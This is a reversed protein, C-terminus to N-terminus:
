YKKMLDFVRQLFAERDVDTVVVAHHEDFQKDSYLDTVTKGLTRKGKTEVRVGAEEGRFISDDATYLVAAPDHLAVTDMGWTEFLKLAHQVVDRFLKCEKTGIAAMEELEPKTMYAKMTVDLGCMHIPIGSAFMMDAAEPDVYINFEAAPTVNGGIAAGGMIVIRRILQPLDSYKALAIAINTMPGVAILQLEGKCEKAIRYIVDWAAETEKPANSEPLVIGGMGDAGHVESATHVQRMLPKQAGPYVPVEWGIFSVLNRGNRFTIDAPVNGSVTTIARVDLTNIQHALMLALADDVGPDCDIIVPIKSM